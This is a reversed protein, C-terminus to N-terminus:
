ARKFPVVKSKRGEVIALLHEAWTDLAQRKEPLYTARNYIGAVGAKHGSIHNLVAEIIHPQIGCEGAMLTAVTRRLDHLTWHEIECRQDHAAKAKSYGSFGTTGTEGFVCERKLSFRSLMALAPESLPVIHPRGNKVRDGTLEIQEGKIEKSRLGAIEERRQGTLMLLKVIAGYDDDDAANWIQRLEDHTLVRDRSHEERKRTHEVPNGKPLDIGESLVWGFFKSLAARFRNAAIEGRGRAVDNLLTSIQGREVSKVPLKHLPKAMETLRLSMGYAHSDSWATHVELFRKVLSGFTLNADQKATEKVLAPDEGLQIKAVLDLATKRARTVNDPTGPGLTIRRQTGGFRYRYIFKRSGSAWMRLGFGAIEDDWFDAETKGAPVKLAAIAKATIKM